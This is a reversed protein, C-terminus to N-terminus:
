SMWGKWKFIWYALTSVAGGSFLAIIIFVPTTAPEKIVGKVEYVGWCVVLFIVWLFIRCIMEIDHAQMQM